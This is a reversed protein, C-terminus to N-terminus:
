GSKRQNTRKNIEGNVIEQKLNWYHLLRGTRNKNGQWTYCGSETESHWNDRFYWKVPEIKSDVLNIRTMIATSYLAEGMDSVGSKALIDLSCIWSGQQKILAEARSMASLIDTEDMAKVFVEHGTKRRGEETTEIYAIFSPEKTTEIYTIGPNWGKEKDEM